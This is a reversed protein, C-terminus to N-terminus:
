GQIEQALQLWHDQALCCRMLHIRHQNSGNKKVFKLKLGLSLRWKMPWELRTFVWPGAWILPESSIWRFLSGAFGLRSSIVQARM